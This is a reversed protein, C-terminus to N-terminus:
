CWMRNAGRRTSQPGLTRDTRKAITLVDRRQRRGLVSMLSLHSLIGSPRGTQTTPEQNRKKNPSSPNNPPLPKLHQNRGELGHGRTKANLTPNVLSRPHSSPPPARGDSSSTAHAQARGQPLKKAWTERCRICGYTNNEGTSPTPPHLEKRPPKCLPVQSRPNKPYSQVPLGQPPYWLIQFHGIGTHLPTLPLLSGM